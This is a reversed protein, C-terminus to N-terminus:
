RSRRVRKRVLLAGGTLTLAAATAAAPTLSGTGSEALQGGGQQPTTGSAGGTTPRATPTPRPTSTSLKAIKFFLETTDNDMVPDLASDNLLTTWVRFTKGGADKPFTWHLAFTHSEGPALRSPTECVLVNMDTWCSKPATPWVHIVNTDISLKVAEGSAVEVPGHNTIVLETLVTEGPKVPVTQPKWAIGVDTGTRAEVTATATNDEPKTDVADGIDAAATISLSTGPAVDKDVKVALHAYVHEPEDLPRCTVRRGDKSPTCTKYGVYKPDTPPVYTLGTPLTVTTALNPVTGTVVDTQLDLRVMRGPAVSTPELRLSTKVDVEAAAPAAQAASVALSSLLLAAAGAGTTRALGGWMSLM